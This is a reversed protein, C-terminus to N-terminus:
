ALGLVKPAQVLKSILSLGDGIAIVCHHLDKRTLVFQNFERMCQARADTTDADAVDGKWLVNDMLIVGNPTLLNLSVELYHKYDAKKADIFIFDFRQQQQQLAHLSVRAEECRWTIRHAVQAKKWVAEGMPPFLPHHDITCIRAHDETALAMALTAYGTYTGIELLNQPKLLRLMFMMFHIQDTPSRLQANVLADTQERLEQLCPDEPPNIQLLYAYLSPTM